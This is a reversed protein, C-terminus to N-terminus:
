SSCSLDLTKAWDPPEQAYFDMDPQDDFPKTLLKLLMDVESFDKSEAKTIAIQAMYNRLVYKPNVALMITQRSAKDSNEDRLRQSYNNAWQDFRIGRM